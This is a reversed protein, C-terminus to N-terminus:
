RKTVYSIEPNGLMGHVPLLSQLSRLLREHQKDTVRAPFRGFLAAPREMVRTYETKVDAHKIAHQFADAQEDLALATFTDPDPFLGLIFDYGPEDVVQISNCVIPTTTPDLEYKQSILELEDRFGKKTVEARQRKRRKRDYVIEYERIDDAVLRNFLRSIDSRSELDARVGIHGVYMALDGPACVELYPAAAPYTRYEPEQLADDSMDLGYQTISAANTLDFGLIDIGIAQAKLLFRKGGEFKRFVDIHAYEPPSPTIM